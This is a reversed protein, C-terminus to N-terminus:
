LDSSVSRPLFINVGTGTGSGLCWDNSYLIDTLHSNILFDSLIFYRINSIHLENEDNSM